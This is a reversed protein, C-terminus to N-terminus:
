KFQYFVWNLINHGKKEIVYSTTLMKKEGRIYGKAILHKIIDIDLDYSRDDKLNKERIKKLAEIWSKPIKEGGSEVFAKKLEPKLAKDIEDYYEQSGEPPGGSVNGSVQAEQKPATSNVKPQIIGLAVARNICEKLLEPLVVANRTAMQITAFSKPKGDIQKYLVINGGFFQPIYITEKWFVSDTGGWFKSRTYGKKSFKIDGITVVGNKEFINDVYRKVIIPIILQSSLWILKKYTELDSFSISIQSDDTGVTFYYTTSYNSKIGNYSLQTVEKYFIKQREYEVFRPMFEAYKTSLFSSIKVTVLSNKDAMIYKALQVKDNELEKKYSETGSIKAAFNLMWAAEERPGFKSMWTEEIRPSWYNFLEVAKARIAEAAHNRVIKSQADGYLGNKRLEQFNKQIPKIIADIEGITGEWKSEENSKSYQKGDRVIRVKELEVIRDNIEQYLPQLVTKETQKGYSGFVNQFEKIYRSNKHIQGLDTYIDSIEKIAVSKFSSINEQSMTQENQACYSKSFAAWFEESNVLEKWLSLSDNFYKQNDDDLLLLCYLVALNKKYFLAASNKNESLEKWIQIAKLYDRKILYDQARKDNANSIQFWFFYEKINEKPSQLEKLAIKVAEETRFKKPVGIDLDYEPCDDIKLRSTIENHRKLIEKQSATADLGLIRYANNEISNPM